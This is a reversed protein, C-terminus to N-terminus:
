DFHMMLKVLGVCGAVMCPFIIMGGLREITLTLEGTVVRAVQSLYVYPFLFLVMATTAHVFFRYFKRTEKGIMFNFLLLYIKKIFKFPALLVKQLLMTIGERLWTKEHNIIFTKM